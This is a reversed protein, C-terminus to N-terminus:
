VSKNKGTELGIRYESLDTSQLSFYYRISSRKCDFQLASEM